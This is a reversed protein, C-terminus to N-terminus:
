THEISTGKKKTKDHIINDKNTNHSIKTMEQVHSNNLVYQGSKILQALEIARIEDRQSITEISEFHVTDYALLLPNKDGLVGGSYEEACILTIPALGTKKNTNFVMIDRNLARAAAVICIDGM